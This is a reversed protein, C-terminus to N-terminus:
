AKIMPIKHWEHRLKKMVMASDIQVSGKPFDNADEYLRVYARTIKLPRIQWELLRLEMGQYHSNDKAASYGVAGKAFFESAEDLSGFISSASFDDCELGDFIVHPKAGAHTIEVHYHGANENVQFLTRQFIGPFIRGGAWSNFASATDRRPIFVGEGNTGEQMWEVAIRHAANESNIGLMEPVHRPRLRRFRIMCIGGVGYGKHLRPRFPSPLFKSLLEPDFRYNLLIRRDLLGVIVPLQMMM